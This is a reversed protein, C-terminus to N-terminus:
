AIFLPGGSSFAYGDFILRECLLHSQALASASIFLRVVKSSVGLARDRCREGAM